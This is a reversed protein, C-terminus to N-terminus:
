AEAGKYASPHSLFPKFSLQSLQDCPTRNHGVREPATRRARASPWWLTTQLIRPRVALFPCVVLFPYSTNYSENHCTCYPITSFSSSSCCINSPFAQFQIVFFTQYALTRGHNCLQLPDQNGTHCSMSRLALNGLNQHCGGRPELRIRRMCSAFIVQMLFAAVAFFYRQIMSFWTIFTIFVDKRATRSKSPKM